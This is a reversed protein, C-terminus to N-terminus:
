KYVNYASVPLSMGVIGVSIVYYVYEIELILNQKAVIKFFFFLFFM